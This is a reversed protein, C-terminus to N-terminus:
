DREGEKGEGREREGERQTFKGLVSLSVAATDSTVLNSAQCTYQQQDSGVLNSIVLSAGPLGSALPLVQPPIVLNYKLTM